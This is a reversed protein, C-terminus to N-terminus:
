QRGIDQVPRSENAELWRLVKDKVESSSDAPDAPISTVLAGDWRVQWVAGPEASEGAEKRVAEFEKGNWSVTLREAM